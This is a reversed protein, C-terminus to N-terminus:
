PGYPAVFKGFEDGGIRAVIDTKRLHDKLTFGITKLVQDGEAHGYEDNIFKFNDVDIYALTIPRKIRGILNIHRQLIELFTRGNILGTLGDMQANEQERELLTHIKHLLLTTIIFFGCRVSANWFLIMEHSYPHGSKSIM